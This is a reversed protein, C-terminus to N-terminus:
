RELLKYRRDGVIRRSTCACAEEKGRHIIVVLRPSFLPIIHLQPVREWYIILLQVIGFILFCFSSLLKHSELHSGTVDISANLPPTLILDAMAGRM